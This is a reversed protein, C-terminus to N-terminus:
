PLVPENQILLDACPDASLDFLLRKLFLAGQQGAPDVGTAPPLEGAVAPCGKGPRRSLVDMAQPVIDGRSRSRVVKRCRLQNAHVFIMRLGAISRSVAYGSTM